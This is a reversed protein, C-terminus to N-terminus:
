GEEIAHTKIYEKIAYNAYWNFHYGDNQIYNSAAYGDNGKLISAIDLFKVNNEHAMELIYFNYKNITDQSFKNNDLWKAIPYITTLIIKTDPSLEKIKNILDNANKLFVDKKIWSTSFSGFNILIIEPKYKTVADLLKMEQGTGYVNLKKTFMSEAHLCPIAWTNGDKSLGYQYFYMLNSDGVLKIKDFYTDGKNKTKTLYVDSYWGELTYDKISMQTPRVREVKVNRTVTEKNGANDTVEYTVKYDGLKSTDINDTVIVKDTVNGDLNDIAQYGPEVYKTNITVEFNEDGVLTITPKSLDRVEVKRTVKKNYLLSRYIYNVTYSGVNKGINDNMKIDKTIDSDLIDGRFGPESYKEGYDLVITEDGYLNINILFFPMIIFAIGFIFFILSLLPCIKIRYKKKRKM